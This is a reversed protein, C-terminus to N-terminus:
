GFFAHHTIAKVSAGNKVIKDNISSSTM